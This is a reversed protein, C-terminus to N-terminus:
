VLANNLLANPDISSATTLKAVVPLNENPSKVLDTKASIARIAVRCAADPKNLLITPEAKPAYKPPPLM